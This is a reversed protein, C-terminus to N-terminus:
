FINTDDIPLVVPTNKLMLANINLVDEIRQVSSADNISLNEVAGHLSAGAALVKNYLAHRRDAEDPLMFASYLVIGNINPLERLVEELMVYSGPMAYETASLLYQFNNRQCFDRIVLNQVHQPARQGQYNRSGIYGRYGLRDTM